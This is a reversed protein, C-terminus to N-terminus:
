IGRFKKYKLYLSPIMMSLVPLRVVEFIENLVLALILDRYQDGIIEKWKKVHIYEALKGNELKDLMKESNIIKIKVLFYFLVMTLFYCIIYTYLGFIGYKKINQKMRRFFGKKKKNINKEVGLKEGKSNPENKSNNEKQCFQFKNIRIIGRQPISHSKSVFSKNIVCPQIKKTIVRNKLILKFYAYM